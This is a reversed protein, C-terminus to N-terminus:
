ASPMQRMRARYVFYSFSSAMTSALSSILCKDSAIFWSMTPLPIGM